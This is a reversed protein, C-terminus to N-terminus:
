CCFAIKKSPDECYYDTEMDYIDKCWILLMNVITILM